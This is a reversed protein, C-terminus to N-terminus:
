SATYTRIAVAVTTVSTTSATPTPAGTATETASTPQRQEPRQVPKPLASTLESVDVAGDRNGDVHAFVDELRGTWRQDRKEIGQGKGIRRHHFRVSARKLLEIAGETFEEKTLVGDGDADLAKVLTVARTSLEVSDAAPAPTTSVAAPTSTVTNSRGRALTSRVSVALASLSTVIMLDEDKV